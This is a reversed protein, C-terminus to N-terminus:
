SPPPVLGDEVARVYLDRRTPAPRGAKEYKVRIRRLHTRFTESTMGIQRALVTILDNSATYAVLVERQRAPLRLPPGSTPTGRNGDDHVVAAAIGPDLVASSGHSEARDAVELGDVDALLQALRRRVATDSAVITVRLPEAPGRGGGHATPRDPM